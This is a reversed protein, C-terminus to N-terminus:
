LKTAQRMTASESRWAELRASAAERLAKLTEFKGAAEAEETIAVLYREDACAEREQATLPLESHMKMLLARVHKVKRESLIADRRANGIERASDRLFTMARDLEADTVLRDSRQGAELARQNVTSM